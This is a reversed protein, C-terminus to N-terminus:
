RPRMIWNRKWTSDFFNFTCVQLHNIHQVFILVYIKEDFIRIHSRRHCSEQLLSAYIELSNVKVHPIIRINPKSVVAWNKYSVPFFLLYREYMPYEISPSSFVFIKCFVSLNRVDYTIPQLQIIEPEAYDQFTTRNINIPVTRDEGGCLAQEATVPIWM